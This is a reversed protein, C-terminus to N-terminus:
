IVATATIPKGVSASRYATTAKEPVFNELDAMGYGNSWILKGELAVAISFAPIRDKSIKATIPQEIQKVKERSLTQASGADALCIITSVCIFVQASRTIGM